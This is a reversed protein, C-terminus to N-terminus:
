QRERKSLWVWTLAGAVVMAVFWGGRAESRNLDLIDYFFFYSAIAIAWVVAIKGPHWQGVSM